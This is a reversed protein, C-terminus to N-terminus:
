GRGAEILTLRVDVLGNAPTRRASFSEVRAGHQSVFPELWRMLADFPVDEFNVSVRGNPQPEVTGISAGLGASRATADLQALLSRGGGSQAVPLLGSGRLAPATQRMWALDREAAAVADAAAGHARQQPFIVFAWLLLLGGVISGIALLRQERPARALWWRKM